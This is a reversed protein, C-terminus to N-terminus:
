GGEGLHAPAPNKTQSAPEPKDLMRVDIAREGRKRFVVRSGIPIPQDAGGQADALDFFIPRRNGRHFIWGFQKEANWGKLFGIQQKKSM